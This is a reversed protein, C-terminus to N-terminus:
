NCLKAMWLVCVNASHQNVLWLGYIGQLLTTFLGKQETGLPSITNYLTQKNKSGGRINIVLSGNIVTCGRLAQAATVSDVTKLGMCVKPCLGACQTCNLRRCLVTVHVCLWVAARLWENVRAAFLVLFCLFICIHHLTEIRTSASHTANLCYHITQTLSVSGTACFHWHQKPHSASAHSVKRPLDLIFSVNEWVHWLCLKIVSQKPQYSQGSLPVTQRRHLISEM